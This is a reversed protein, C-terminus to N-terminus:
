RVLYTFDNGLRHLAADSLDPHRERMTDRVEGGIEALSKEGWEVQIRMTEDLMARVDERLAPSAVRAQFEADNRGLYHQLNLVAAEGLDDAPDTM